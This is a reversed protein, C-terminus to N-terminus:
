IILPHEFGGIELAHYVNARSLEIQTRQGSGLTASVYVLIDIKVGKVAEAPLRCQMKNRM